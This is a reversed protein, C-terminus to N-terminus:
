EVERLDVVRLIACAPITMDGCGQDEVDAGSSAGDVMHPVVVKCDEGDHVLWGVSRCKLPRTAGLEGFERWDISCGYSDFWEIMM